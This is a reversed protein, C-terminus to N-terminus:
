RQRLGGAFVPKCVLRRCLGAHDRKVMGYFPLDGCVFDVVFGLKSKFFECSATADAAYLQAAISSLVPHPTALKVQISMTPVGAKLAM